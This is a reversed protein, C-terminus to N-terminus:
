KKICGRRNWVSAAQEKTEYICALGLGCDECEVGIRDHIHYHSKGGCCPCTKLETPNKTNFNGNLISWGYKTITDLYEIARDKIKKVSFAYDDTRRANCIIEDFCVDIVEILKEQNEYANNDSHTEQIPHINGVLKMVVEIITESNM